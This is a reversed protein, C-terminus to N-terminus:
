GGRTNSYLQEVMENAVSMIRSSAQYGRQIIMMDAFEQTLDVNSLEISGGQVKGLVGEGAYGYDPQAVDSARYLSGTGQILSSEDIFSALALRVGDEKDGNSYTFKLQGKEDFTLSTLGLIAHGDRVRAGVSTTTMPNQYTGSFSGPEGFNLIIPQSVGGVTLSVNLRNFGALPTNDPGYRVTGNGVTTSNEDTVTVTLTDISSRTFVATLTHSTGGADFVKINNVTHTTTTTNFVGVMNVETTAEAPRTRLEAINITNLNGVADLSMVEHQTVSDVLIGEENFQFQGARTYYIEGSADRLVFFGSGNLALDTANGTQRVEGAGLRVDSGALTTGYGGGQSNVSRFFSDSGRFGPTNMNSVNNSVTNLGRSFSFLGSLGNFFSQLM